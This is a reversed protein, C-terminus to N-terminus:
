KEAAFKKYMEAIGASQADGSHIVVRYRFRQAQGPELTVSGDRKKDNFFDHEGFPNAAFLGYARAHWFTPHKLNSPHDFIAIGLKEGQLEGAYDVWPSPKGWVNKETAAGEASVMRGTGGKGEKLPEALRLAFFGEKTDGFKAKRVATLTADFDIIRLNPAARFKMTRNESLLVEGKPDVWEFLATISGEKKGSKLDIVKKLQVRGQKGKADQGWFDFGNVDGHTFWLGRHHPHDRSEGEVMEMPFLRTVIKDSAARLPHLYPKLTTGGTFLATFPKGDIEVM